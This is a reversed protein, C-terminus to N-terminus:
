LKICNKYKYYTIGGDLAPQDSDSVRILDEARNITEGRRGKDFKIQIQELVYPNKFVSNCLFITRFDLIYKLMLLVFVVDSIWQDLIEKAEAPVKPQFFNYKIFEETNHFELGSKKLNQFLYKLAVAQEYIMKGGKQRYPLTAVEGADNEEGMLLQYNLVTSTAVGHMTLYYTCYVADLNQYMREFDAFASAQHDNILMIRDDPIGLLNVLRSKINLDTLVYDEMNKNRVVINNRLKGRVEVVIDLNEKAITDCLKRFIRLISICLVDFNKYRDESKEYSMFIEGYTRRSNYDLCYRTVNQDVYISLIGKIEKITSDHGKLLDEICNKEQSEISDIVNEATGNEIFSMQYELNEKSYAIQLTPAGSSGLEECSSVLCEVIESLDDMDQICEQLSFESLLEKIFSVADMEEKKELETLYAMLVIRLANGFTLNCNKGFLLSLEHLKRDEHWSEFTDSKPFFRVLQKRSNTNSYLRASTKIPIGIDQSIRGHVYKRREKKNKNEINDKDILFLIRYLIFYM